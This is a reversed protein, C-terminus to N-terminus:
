DTRAVLHIVQYTPFEEQAFELLKRSSLGYLAFTDRENFEGSYTWYGGTYERLVGSDKNLISPEERTWETNPDLLLANLNFKQGLLLVCTIPRTGSGEDSLLVSIQEEKSRLARVPYHSLPQLITPTLRGTKLNDFAYFVTDESLPKGIIRALVLSPQIAPDTEPDISKFSPYSEQIIAAKEDVSADLMCMSMIEYLDAEAKHPALLFLTQILLLSFSLYKPPM